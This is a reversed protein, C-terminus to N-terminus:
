ADLRALSGHRDFVQSRLRDLNNWTRSHQIIEERTQPPGLAVENEWAREADELRRVYKEATEHTVGKVEIMTEVVESHTMADDEQREGPARFQISWGTAQGGPQGRCAPRITTRSLVGCAKYRARREEHALHGATGALRVSPNVRADQVALGSTLRYTTLSGVVGAARRGASKGVGDDRAPSM